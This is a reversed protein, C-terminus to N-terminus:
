MKYKVNGGLKCLAKARDAIIRPPVWDHPFREAPRKSWDHAVNAAIKFLYGRPEDVVEARDYRLLRLFVEQALDDLDAGAGRHRRALFKLLPKRWERFWNALRAPNPSM